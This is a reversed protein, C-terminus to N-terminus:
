TALNKEAVGATRAIDLESSAMVTGALVFICMVMSVERRGSDWRSQTAIRISLDLSHCSPAPRSFPVPTEVV